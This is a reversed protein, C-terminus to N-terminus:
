VLLFCFASLGVIFGFNWFYLYFCMFITFSVTFVFFRTNILVLNGYLLIFAFLVNHATGAEEGFGGYAIGCVLGEKSRRGEPFPFALPFSFFLYM